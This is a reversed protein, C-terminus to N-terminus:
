AESRFRPEGFRAFYQADRWAEKYKEAERKSIVRYEVPSLKAKAKARLRRVVRYARSWGIQPKGRVTWEGTAENRRQIFYTTKELDIFNRPTHTGANQTM